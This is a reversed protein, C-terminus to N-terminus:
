PRSFYSTYKLKNVCSECFYDNIHYIASSNEIPEGDRKKSNMLCKDESTCHPLGFSHGLEHVVTKKLLDNVNRKMRHTSVINFKGFMQSAGFVGWNKGSKKIDTCIDVNTLVIVRGDKESFINEFTAFIKKTHYRNLGEVKSDSILDIDPLITVNYDEFNSEIIEKVKLVDSDSVDGMSTLYIDKSSDYFVVLFAIVLVTIYQLTSKIM